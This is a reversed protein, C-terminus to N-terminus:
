EVVGQYDASLGKDLFDQYGPRVPSEGLSSLQLGKWLAQELIRARFRQEPDLVNDTIMGQVFGAQDGARAQLMYYANALAPDKYGDLMFHIDGATKLAYVSGAKASESLLALVEARPAGVRASRYALIAQAAQNGTNALDRLSPLPLSLLRMEVDPGPYGHQELWKADEESAAIGPDGPNWRYGRSWESALDTNRSPSNPAVQRPVQPAREVPAATSGIQEVMSDEAPIGDEKSGLYWVAGLLLSVAVAMTLVRHSMRM